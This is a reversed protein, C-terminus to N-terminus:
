FGEFSHNNATGAGRLIGISFLPRLGVCVGFGTLKWSAVRAKLGTLMARLFQQITALTSLNSSAPHAILDPIRDIEMCGAMHGAVLHLPGGSVVRSAVAYLGAYRRDVADLVFGDAGGVLLCTAMRRSVGWANISAPYHSANRDFRLRRRM